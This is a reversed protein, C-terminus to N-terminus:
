HLPVSFIPLLFANMLILDNVGYVWIFWCVGAVPVFLSGPAALTKWSLEPERMVKRGPNEKQSELELESWLDLSRAAKQQLTKASKPGCHEWTGDGAFERPHRTGRAGHHSYINSDFNAIMDM